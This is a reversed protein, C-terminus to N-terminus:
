DHRQFASRNQERTCENSCATLKRRMAVRLRKPHLLARSVPDAAIMLIEIQHAVGFNVFDNEFIAASYGHLGHGHLWEM